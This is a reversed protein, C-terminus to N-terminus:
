NSPGCNLQSGCVSALINRFPAYTLLPVCQRPPTYPYRSIWETSKDIWFLNYFNLNAGTVNRKMKFYIVYTVLLRPLTTRTHQVVSSDDNSKRYPCSIQSKGFSDLGAAQGVWVGTWRTSDGEESIFCGPRSAWTLFAHLYVEVEGYAKMAHIHVSKSKAVFGM